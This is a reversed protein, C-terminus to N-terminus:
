KTCVYYNKGDESASSTNCADRCNCRKCTTKTPDSPQCELDYGFMIELNDEKKTKKQNVDGMPDLLKGIGSNINPEGYRLNAPASNVLSRFITVTAADKNKGKKWDQVIKEAEQRFATNEAVITTGMYDQHSIAKKPKGSRDEIWVQADSDITFLNGVMAEILDFGGKQEFLSDVADCIAYWSLVHALHAGQCNNPLQNKAICRAKFKKDIGNKWGPRNRCDFNISFCGDNTFALCILISIIFSNM